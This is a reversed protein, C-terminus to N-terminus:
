TQHAVLAGFLPRFMHITYCSWWVLVRSLVRQQFDALTHM